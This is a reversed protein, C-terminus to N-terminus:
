MKEKLQWFWLSDLHFNFYQRNKDRLSKVPSLTTYFKFIMIQQLIFLTLRHLWDTDRREWLVIILRRLLKVRVLRMVHNQTKLRTSISTHVGLYFCNLVVKFGVKRSSYLGYKKTLRAKAQTYLSLIPLFPTILRWRSARSPLVSSGKVEIGKGRWSDLLSFM